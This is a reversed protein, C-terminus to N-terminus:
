ALAPKPGAKDAIKELLKITRDWMKQMRQEMSSQFANQQIQKQVDAIGSFRGRGGVSAAMDKVMDNFIGLMGSLFGDNGKPPAGRPKEDGAFARGPKAGGNAGPAAPQPEDAGALHAGIAGGLGLPNGFEINDGQVSVGTIDTGHNHLWKVFDIVAETADVIAKGFDVFDDIHDAYWQAVEDLHPELDAALTEAAAAVAAALLTFMPTLVTGVTGSLLQWAQDLAKTGNPSAAAAFGKLTGYAEKAASVFLGIAAGAATFGAGTSGEGFAQLAKYATGASGVLKALPANIQSLVAVAGLTAGTFSDLGAASKKRADTEKKVEPTLLAAAEQLPKLEKSVRDAADKLAKDWVDGGFDAAQELHDRLDDAIKESADKFADQLAKGIDPANFDM